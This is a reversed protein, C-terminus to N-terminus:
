YKYKGFLNRIMFIHLDSYSVRVGPLVLAEEAKPSLIATIISDHREYRSNVLLGFFLRM